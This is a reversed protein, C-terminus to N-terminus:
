PEAAPLRVVFESGGLPRRRVGVYGGHAVVHEKVLALGLGTGGGTARSQPLRAFREFVREAQDDPIGPGSDMVRIVVHSREREVVIEEAGGAHQEANDLLNNLVRALRRKSGVVSLRSDDEECTLAPRDGRSELVHGVLAAVSFVEVDRDVEGADLRAIELLDEVLRSFRDVEEEVLRFAQRSVPDLADARRELVAIANTLTTLPSRLEHSVDSAFHAEREMREQLADVMLNFSLALRGVEGDESVELRASLSGDAITMATDSLAQLPQVVRRALSLGLLAGAVSTVAATVILVSGLVHLTSALQDLEIVEVYEADSAAIPVTVVVRPVGRLHFRQIGPQEAAVLRRIGAPLQEPGIEVSTTYWDGHLLLLSQSGSPTQLSALLGPVDATSSRLSEDLLHANVYVQRRASAERQDILYRRALGYTLLALGSSVVMAGLAFAAAVRARLGLRM